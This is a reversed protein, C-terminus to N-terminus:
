NQLPDRHLNSFDGGIPCIGSISSLFADGIATTRSNSNMMQLKLIHAM